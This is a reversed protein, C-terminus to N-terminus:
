GRAAKPRVGGQNPGARREAVEHWRARWRSFSWGPSQGAASRSCWPLEPVPWLGAHPHTPTPPTLAGPRLSPRGARPPPPAEQPGHSRAWHAQAQQEGHLHPLALSPRAAWAGRRPGSGAGASSEWSSAQSHGLSSWASQDGDTCGAPGWRGSCLPQLGAHGAPWTVKRGGEKGGQSGCTAEPSASVM